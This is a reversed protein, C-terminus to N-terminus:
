QSSQWQELQGLREALDRHGAATQRVFLLVEEAGDSVYLEKRAEGGASFWSEPMVTQELVRDLTEQDLAAPAAANASVLLGRVDYMRVSLLKEARNKSTVMLADKHVVATLGQSDLMIDLVAGLSAGSVNFGVPTDYPIREKLLTYFDLVIPIQLQDAIDPLAEFLAQEPADFIIQENLAERISQEAQSPPAQRLQPNTWMDLFRSVEAHVPRTTRVLIAKDLSVIEGMGGNLQWAEPAIFQTIFDGVVQAALRPDGISEQNRALIPGVAYVREELWNETVAPTTIIITENSKTGWTLGLGPLLLDLVNELALGDVKLIVPATFVTAVESGIRFKIKGTAAQDLIIPVQAQTALDNLVDGFFSNFYDATIPRALAAAMRAEAEPDQQGSVKPVDSISPTIEPVNLTAVRLTSSQQDQASASNEGLAALVVLSLGLVSLNSFRRTRFSSM